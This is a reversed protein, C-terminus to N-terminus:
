AKDPQGTDRTMLAFRREDDERDAEAKGEPKIRSGFKREGFRRIDDIFTFAVPVFLLSLVTSTILGGIVAIAMPSRFEVGVGLGMAIPAMGAGMAVTTMIIPRLRTRAASLLASRRDHGAAREQNAFDVLLIGNKTVLGMLMMAIAAGFPWNRGGGFQLQILSGMMMQKGGGMLTPELVAGLAPVFVLIAGSAIGPAALPLILSIASTAALAILALVVQVSYPRLFPGLARLAGVRKSTPRDSTITTRRAM